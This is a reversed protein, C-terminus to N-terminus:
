CWSSVAWVANMVSAMPQFCEFVAKHGLLMKLSSLLIFIIISFQDSLAESGRKNDVMVALLSVQILANFHTKSKLACIAKVQVVCGHFSTLM